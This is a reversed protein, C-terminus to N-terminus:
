RDIKENAALIGFKIGAKNLIEVMAQAVKQNRPDYSQASGVYYLYDLGKMDAASNVVKINLDKAWDGRASAPQAWANGQNEYNNFVNVLADPFETEMMVLNQRMRYLRPLHEMDIPCASECYGCTTCAWITDEKVVDAVLRGIETNSLEGALADKNELM